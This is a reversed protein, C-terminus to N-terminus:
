KGFYGPYERKMFKTLAGDPYTAGKPKRDPLASVTSSMENSFKVLTMPKKDTAFEVMLQGGVQFRMWVPFAYIADMRYPGFTKFVQDDRDKNEALFSNLQVLDYEKGGLTVYVRSVPLEAKTQSLAAILVLGYGDLTDFEKANLPYGIDFIAMKRVPSYQKYEVGMESLRDNIYENNVKNGHWTSESQGFATAALLVALGITFAINRIKM